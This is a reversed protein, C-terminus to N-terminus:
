RFIWKYKHTQIDTNTNRTGPLRERVMIGEKDVLCIQIDSYGYIYKDIQRNTYMYKYKEERATKGEGDYM